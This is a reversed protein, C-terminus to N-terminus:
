IKEGKAFGRFRLFRPFRLSWVDESDQSRTLADARVEVVQGLVSQPDSQYAAWIDARQEDSFGSGVNSLIQIADDVGSCVFAGFSGANKGTGEEVGIVTLSVEIFPKQKLWSASRKCEYIADVDKIMIGEYGEAIMQKNFDKFIVQDAMDELNVEIWPVIEVCGTDKLVNSFNTELFKIRRRQGMVSQGAKFEVLPIIDFVNLVADSADVDSKRNLQTMLTQFDASMVEGDLVYSRGFNDIQELLKDTIHPFNTLEKGNRSYQVVTRSEFDIVTLCRVGDLKKQLIKKGQIKKEHKAGDHALMCEFVPVAYQPMKLKKAVTNVTSEGFGARMDKILVRRYFGNWQETTAVSMALLIADRAAHGTLERRYLSEALQKFGAWPLGQGESTEKVPVQKVGFTYLKDCAMRLGEFFEDLGENMADAIIQEKALRSNDAELKAIVAEPQTRV